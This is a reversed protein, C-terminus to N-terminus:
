DAFHGKRLGQCVTATVVSRHIDEQIYNHANTIHALASIKQKQKVFRIQTRYNNINLFCM